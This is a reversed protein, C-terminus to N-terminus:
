YATTGSDSDKIDEKKKVEINMHKTEFAVNIDLKRGTKKSILRIKFYKEPGRNFITEEAQGLVPKLGVATKGVNTDDFEIQTKEENIFRQEAKPIISLYRKMSKKNKLVKPKFEFIDVLLYVAGSNDILEVKYVESPNSVHGHIDKVRFTYYYKTNPVLRDDLSFSSFGIVDYERMTDKFDEYSTPETNLRFVQFTQPPDDSQFEIISGQVLEQAEYVNKLSEKDGNETQIIIPEQKVEGTNSSLNIKIKNNVNKYPIINVNPAIPPKDLVRIGEPFDQLSDYIPVAVLKMSTENFLCIDAARQNPNILIPFQPNPSTTVTEGFVEFPSSEASTVPQGSPPAAGGGGFVDPPPNAGPPMAPLRSPGTSTRPPPPQAAQRMLADSTVDKLRYDLKNGIVLKWALLVYRYPTNYKVQTDIYKINDPTINPFWIRQEYGTQGLVKRSLSYFLTESYAKDGKLMEKYTRTQRNVYLKIIDVFDKRDYFRAHGPYYGLASEDDNKGLIISSLFQLNQQLEYDGRPAGMRETVEKRESYVGEDMIYDFDIFARSSTVRSDIDSMNKYSTKEIDYAGPEKFIINNILYSYLNKQRTRGVIYRPSIDTSFEIKINMPFQKEIEQTNQLERFQSAPFIIEKYVNALQQVQRSGFSTQTIAEAFNEFHQGYDREGVKRANIISRGGRSPPNRASRNRSLRLIDQYVSDEIMGALEIHQKFRSNSTDLFSGTESLYTYLNPLLSATVDVINEEYRSINFNYSPDISIFPKDGPSNSGATQSFRKENRISNYEIAHDEFTSNAINQTVLDIWATHDYWYDPPDINPLTVSAYDQYIQGGAPMITFDQKTSVFTPNGIPVPTGLSDEISGVKLDSSLYIRNIFPKKQDPPDFKVLKIGTTTHKRGNHTYFIIRNNFLQGPHEYLPDNWLGNYWIKGLTSRVNDREGDVTTINIPNDRENYFPASSTQVQFNIIFPSTM